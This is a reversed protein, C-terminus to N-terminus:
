SLGGCAAPIESHPDQPCGSGMSSSNATAPSLSSIVRGGGRGWSVQKQSQESGHCSTSSGLDEVELSRAMPWPLSLATFLRLCLVSPLSLGARGEGGSGGGGWWRCFSPKSPLAPSALTTDRTRSLARLM